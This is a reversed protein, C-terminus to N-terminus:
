KQSLPFHDNRACAKSFIISQLRIACSWVNIYIKM